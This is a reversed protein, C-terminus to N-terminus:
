ASKLAHFLVLVSWTKEWSKPRFTNSKMDATKWLKKRVLNGSPIFSGEITLTGKRHSASLKADPLIKWSWLSLRLSVCLAICETWLLQRKTCKSVGQVMQQSNYDSRNFLYIINTRMLKWTQTSLTESFRLASIGAENETVKPKFSKKRKKQYSKLLLLQTQLRNEKM